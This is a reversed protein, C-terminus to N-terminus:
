LVETVQPTVRRKGSNYMDVAAGLLYIATSLNLKSGQATFNQVYELPSLDDSDSANQFQLIIFDETAYAYMYVLYLANKHM